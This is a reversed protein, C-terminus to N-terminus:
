LHHKSSRSNGKEPQVASSGSQAGWRGGGSSVEAKGAASARKEESSRSTDKVRAGEQTAGKMPGLVTKAVSTLQTVFSAKEGPSVPRAKSSCPSAANSSPSMPNEELVELHAREEKAMRNINSVKEVKSTAATSMHAATHSQVQTPVPPAPGKVKAPDSAKESSCTGGKEGMETGKRAKIQQASARQMNCKDTGAAGKFNEEAKEQAKTGSGNDLQASKQKSDQQQLGQSPTSIKECIKSKSAVPEFGSSTANQLKDEPGPKVGTTSLVLTPSAKAEVAATSKDKKLVDSCSAATSADDNTKSEALADAAVSQTQSRTAAPTTTQTDKERTSALTDRSLPSEQRGLRRVPKLGGIEEGMPPSPSSSSSPSPPAPGNEGEIELLSQLSHECHFSERRYDGHTVELSHKRLSVGGTLPSPSSSSSSSSPLM